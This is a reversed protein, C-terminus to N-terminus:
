KETEDTEIAAEQGVTNADAPLVMPSTQIGGTAANGTDNAFQQRLHILVLETIDISDSAAVFQSEKLVVDIQRQERVHGIAQFIQTQVGEFARDRATRLEERFDEIKRSFVRQAKRLSRERQLKEDASIASSTSERQLMDQLQQIRKQEADLQLERPSYQAKLQESAAAAQPAEDLLVSVNVVAIRMGSDAKEAFATNSLFLVSCLLCRIVWNKLM